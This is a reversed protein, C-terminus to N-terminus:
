SRTRTATMLAHKAVPESYEGVEGDASLLTGTQAERGVERRSAREDSLPWETIAHRDIEFNSRAKGNAAAAPRYGLHLSM